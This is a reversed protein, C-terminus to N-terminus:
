AIDRQLAQLFADATMIHEGAQWNIHVFYQDRQFSFQGIRFSRYGHDNPGSSATGDAKTGAIM